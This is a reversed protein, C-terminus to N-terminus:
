ARSIALGAGDWQVILGLRPAHRELYFYIGQKAYSSQGQEIYREIDPYCREGEQELIKEAVSAVPLHGAKDIITWLLGVDIPFGAAFAARFGRVFWNWDGEVVREVRALYSDLERVIQNAAAGDGTEHLAVLLDVQDGTRDVIKLLEAAWAALAGAGPGAEDRQMYSQGSFTFGRPEDLPRHMIEFSMTSVVEVQRETSLERSRLVEIGRAVIEEPFFPISHLWQETEDRGLRRLSETAAQASARDGFKALVLQLEYRSKADTLPDMVLERFLSLVPETTVADLREGHLMGWLRRRDQKRHSRCLKRLHEKWDPLLLYARIFDHWLGNEAQADVAQEILRFEVRKVNTAFQAALRVVPPLAQDRSLSDWDVGPEDRLKYLADAVVRAALSGKGELRARAVLLEVASPAIPRLIEIWDKDWLERVDDAALVAQLCEMTFARDDARRLIGARGIIWREERLVEKLPEDPPRSFGEEILPAIKQQVIPGAKSLLRALRQGVEWRLGDSVKAGNVICRAVLRLSTHFVDDPQDLQCRLIDESSTMREIAFLIAQAWPRRYIKKLWDGKWLEESDALATGALYEQVTPIAFAVRTGRRQLLGYRVLTDLSKDGGPGLSDLLVARAAPVTLAAENSELASQALIEAAKRLQAPGQESLRAGPKHREPSLALDICRELVEVRSTPVRGRAPIGAVFLALFLPISCLSELEPYDWVHAIVDRRTLDPRLSLYGRLMASIQERYLREIRYLSFQPLNTVAADRAALLIPMTPYISAARSVASLVATRATDTVEDLGDVMMVLRGTEAVAKWDVAVEWERNLDTNLYEILSRHGTLQDATVLVPLYTTEKAVRWATARLLTTKGHGGGSEVVIRNQGAAPFDRLNLQKGRPRPGFPRQEDDFDPHDSPDFTRLLPWVLIKDAAASISTGPVSVHEFQSILANRYKELGDGSSGFVRLGFRKLLTESLDAARFTARTRGAGGALDRLHSYLTNADSSASPMWDRVKFEAIEREPWILVTTRAALRFTENGSAGLARDISAVIKQHEASMASRWESDNEKGSARALAERLSDLAETYTGVVLHLVDGPGNMSLVQQRAALWFKKWPEGSIALNEKAQVYFTAGDAHDIVIDDVHEPAELRVSTVRATARSTSRLDLLAGLYLAAVSNQYHIGSQTSPGGVEAM